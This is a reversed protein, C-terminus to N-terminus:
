SAANNEEKPNTKYNILGILVNYCDELNADLLSIKKRIEDIKQSQGLLDNQLKTEKASAKIDLAATDLERSVDELIESIKKHVMNMPVTITFKANM